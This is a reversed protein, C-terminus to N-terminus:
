GAFTTSASWEYVVVAVLVGIVVVSGGIWAAIKQWNRKVPPKKPPNIFNKIAEKRKQESLEAESLNSNPNNEPNTM